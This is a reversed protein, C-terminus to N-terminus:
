VLLNKVQFYAQKGALNFHTRCPDCKKPMLFYDNFGVKRGQCNNSANLFPNVGSSEKGSEPDPFGSPGTEGHSELNVDPHLNNLPLSRDFTDGAEVPLFHLWGSESVSRNRILHGPSTGFFVAPSSAETGPVRARPNRGIQSNRSRLMEQGIYM